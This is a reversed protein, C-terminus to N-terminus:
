AASWGMRGMGPDYPNDGSGDNLTEVKFSPRVLNFGTFKDPWQELNFGQVIAKFIRTPGLGPDYV